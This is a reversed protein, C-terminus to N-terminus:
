SQVLSKNWWVVFSHSLSTKKETQWQHGDPRIAIGYIYYIFIFNPVTMFQSHASSLISYWALLIITIKTCIWWSKNNNNLEVGILDSESRMINNNTRTQHTLLYFPFSKLFYNTTESQNWAFLLSRPERVFM